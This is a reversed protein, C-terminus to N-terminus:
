GIFTYIIRSPQRHRHLHLHAHASSAFCPLGRRDKLNISNVVFPSFYNRAISFSREMKGLSRTYMMKIIVECVFLCKFDFWFELWLHLLSTCSSVRLLLLNKQTEIDHYIQLQHPSISRSSWRCWRMAVMIIAMVCWRTHWTLHTWYKFGQYSKEKYLRENM